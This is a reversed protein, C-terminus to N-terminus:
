PQVETPNTDDEACASVFALYAIPGNMGPGAAAPQMGLSVDRFVVGTPCRDFQSHLLAGMFRRIQEHLPTLESAHFPLIMLVSGGTVERRPKRAAMLANAEEVTLERDFEFAYSPLGPCRLHRTFVTGAPHERTMTEQSHRDYAPSHELLEPMQGDECDHRWARAFAREAQQWSGARRAQVTLRFHTGAAVDDLKERSPTGMSDAARLADRPTLPVKDAIDCGSLVVAMTLSLLFFGATKM